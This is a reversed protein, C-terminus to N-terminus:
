GWSRLRGCGARGVGAAGARDRREGCGGGDGSRGVDRRESGKLERAPAQLAPGPSVIVAREIFNQLERINGPWQYRTLAQMADAPINTIRRNMRRAYQQVFYRVLLPIDDRRDRLPPVTIPFVDLRYYLDARFQREEVLAALDRNTAAM